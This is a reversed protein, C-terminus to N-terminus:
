HELGEVSIGEAAMNERSVDVLFRGRLLQRGLLVQFKMESRDFLTFPTLARVGGLDVTTHVVWRETLQGNSSRVQKRSYKRFAKRVRKRGMSFTVVLETHDGTQRLTIRQYHLASTFAGTDVKAKVRAIGLGPLAIHESRGIVLLAKPM